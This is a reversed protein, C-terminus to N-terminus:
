LRSLWSSLAAVTRPLVDAQRAAYDEAKRGIAQVEAPDRLLEAVTRTLAAEDPVALLGGAGILADSLEQFSARYPGMVSACHLRAPELPNHGGVPVLSGGLFVIPALRYFLGLEGLTDAVYIDCAPSDGASRLSVRPGLPRLGAAISPGRQPHRPVVITLLDPLARRLVAHVRAVVEEEGDHTSAALWRPRLGWATALEQHAAPVDPLPLAAAKLNGPTEVTAAGLARLRAADEDSQALISRFNALVAAALPRVRRWRDFSRQSMRANVLITPVDRQRLAHLTNPWLESEVWLALDPRWHDLFRMVASPLDVPAFQHVCPPTLRQAMLAASTATGTTVLPTVKPWRDRIALILPLLSLGEGVSAAHMWVVPGSPRPVTARGLREDIRQVDEKGEAARRHLHRAVFPSAARSAAAYVSLGFQGLLAKM